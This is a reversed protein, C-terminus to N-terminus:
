FANKGSQKLSRKFASPFHNHLSGRFFADLGEIRVKPGVAIVAKQGM